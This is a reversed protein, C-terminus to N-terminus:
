IRGDYRVSLIIQIELTKLFFFTSKKEQCHSSKPDARNTLGRLQQRKEDTREQTHSPMERSTKASRWKKRLNLWQRKGYM